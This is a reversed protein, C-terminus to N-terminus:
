SFAQLRDALARPTVTDTKHHVLIASLLEDLDPPIDSKGLDFIRRMQGPKLVISRVKPADGTIWEVLLRALSRVDEIAPRVADAHLPLIDLCIPNDGLDLLIWKPDPRCDTLNVEHMMGITFSLDRVVRVARRWDGRSAAMAKPLPEGEAAEVVVEFRAPAKGDPDPRPPERVLTPLGPLVRGDAFMAGLATLGAGARARLAPPTEFCHIRVRRGSAIESASIIRGLPFTCEVGRILFGQTSVSEKRIKATVVALRERLHRAAAAQGNLEASRMGLELQQAARPYDRDSEAAEAAQERAELEHIREGRQRYVDAVKALNRAAEAPRKVADLLLEIQVLRLQTYEVAPKGGTRTAKDLSGIWRTFLSDNATRVAGYLTVAENFRAEATELLEDARGDQKREGADRRQHLAIEALDRLAMVQRYPDHQPNGARAAGEATVVARAQAEAEELQRAGILARTLANQTRTDKNDAFAAGLIASAEGYHRSDLLTSGIEHWIGVSRSENLRRWIALGSLLNLVSEDGRGQWAKLKGLEMFVTALGSQSDASRMLGYASELLDRAEALRNEHTAVLGLALYARAAAFRSWADDSKALAEADELRIRENDALKLKAKRRSAYTREARAWLDYPPPASLAAGAAEFAESDQGANQLALVGLLAARATDAESAAAGGTAGDALKSAAAPEGREASRWLAGEDEKLVSAITMSQDTM